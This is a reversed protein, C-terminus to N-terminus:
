SYLIFFFVGIVAIVFSIVINAMYIFSLFEKEKKKEKKIRYEALYRVASSGFGFNLLTMYSVFSGMIKYVGYQSDGIQSIIFPTTLISVLIQLAMYIYSLISAIKIEKENANMILVM